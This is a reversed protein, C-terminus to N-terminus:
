AASALADALERLSGLYDTYTPGYIDSVEIRLGYEDFVMETRSVGDALKAKPNPFRGWPADSTVRTQNVLRATYSQLRWARGAGFGSTEIRVQGFVAKYIRGQKDLPLSDLVEAPSSLLVDCLAALDEDGLRTDTEDAVQERLSAIETAVKSLQATFQSVASAPTQESFLSDNISQVREELFALRQATASPKRETLDQRIMEALNEADKFVRPLEHRLVQFVAGETLLQPAACALGGRGKGSGIASCAYHGRGHGIMRSGCGLCELVGALPHRYGGKMTRALMPKDFKRRWRRVRAADWYALEPVHQLFTKPENTAPDLAFKDWVTSRQKLSTGFSFTGTYITNRLIYRLGYMHWHTSEGGRGRFAPRAPGETNLRREVESLTECEDFARALADIIHQHEPNKAVHMKDNDDAVNVYGLPTKMYHPERELKKFTGSWFTNRINRWDIGAIFCQFQFQLLDDDLRLNYERDFTHFRGNTQVLIRAITGGDIGFEDRTLRKFDYVGIGQIRGAKLDELMAMAIKRKSLDAGSTGQEDYFRVACGRQDIRVDLDYQAASRYNGIQRVTSNRILLGITIPM